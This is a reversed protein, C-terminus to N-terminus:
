FAKKHTKIFSTYPHILIYLSTYYLIVWCNQFVLRWFLLNKTIRAMLVALWGSFASWFGDISIFFLLALRLIRLYKTPKLVYVVSRQNYGQSTLTSGGTLCFRQLIGNSPKLIKYMFRREEDSHFHFSLM